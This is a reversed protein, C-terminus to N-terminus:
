YSCYVSEENKGGHASTLLVTTDYQSYDIGSLSFTAVATKSADATSSIAAAAQYAVAGDTSGKETLLVMINGSDIEAPNNYIVKLNNGDVTIAGITNSSYTDYDESKVYMKYEPKATTTTGVNTFTSSVTGSNRNIYAINTTDLNFAPRVGYSYTTYAVYVNGEGQVLLSCSISEDIRGAPRYWCSDSAEGSFKLYDSSISNVARSGGNYIGPYWDSSPLWSATVKNAYVQGNDGFGYDTNNIDYYDLLFLKDGSTTERVGNKSTVSAYQAAPHNTKDNIRNINYKGSLNDTAVTIGEKKFIYSSISTDFGWNDTTYSSAAEVANKEASNFLKSYWSASENVTTPITPDASASAGTYYTGGNLSARIKSTGWFAYDPNSDYPNYVEATIQKDAWLLMGNGYKNDDGTSLVRWKVTEGENTGFYVYEKQKGEFGNLIKGSGNLDLYAGSAKKTAAAAYTTGASGAFSLGTIVTACACLTALLGGVFTKRKIKMFRVGKRAIFFLAGIM